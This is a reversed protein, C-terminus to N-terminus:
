GPRYITGTVMKSALQKISVYHGRWLPVRDLEMRLRSAAFSTVLLEQNKLEKSARM